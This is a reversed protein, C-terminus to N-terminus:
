IALIKEPKVLFLAEKTSHSSDLYTRKGLNYIYCVCTM